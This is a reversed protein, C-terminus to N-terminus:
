ISIGGGTTDAGGSAPTTIAGLSHRGPHSASPIALAQNTTAGIAPAGGARSDDDYYLYYLTGYALGAIPILGTLTASQDPYVRTHDAVTIRVASGTDHATALGSGPVTYSSSILQQLYGSPYSQGSTAPGYITRPGFVGNVRYRASAQYQTGPTVSTIEKTTITPAELSAGLWGDDDGLGSAYVRYDFAVADVNTPTVAGSVVLAAISGSAGTLTSGSLSWDAGPASIATDYTLSSTPPAVGTQGLAFAHKADTESRVTYTVGGTAPDIKRGTIIVKVSWGDEPVFTVCDGIRYNMWIPKLPITGPGAERADCIDYTALQAVQDVNQVLPYSVEKTREDGDMVVYDAVSIEQASVLEWDNAESRYQPIIGNIRTRRPQTGSFSCKGVIDRHTITALSIRPARNICTIIGGPMAPTAGGAQLMSKLSNWLTDPRTYVQGGITWGRADDLNAGEVFSAVDILAIPAGIGAVRVGNQWRGLAWTLAHLHPNDSYVYTTEDLARCSGSGGPYTSDLRPDYVRVGRIIWGPSPLSTLGNTDKANYCFTNFTAALGSLKYTDDWGPFANGAVVGVRQAEPCAGIQRDEWIYGHYTGNAQGGGLQGSGDWSITTKNMFTTEFGAIPGLSLITVLGQFINNSGKLLKAVINGAVLTRGMAYPIGAYPDAKWKTQSGGASPKPLVTALMGIDLAAAAMLVPTIVASTVGLAGGIGVMAGSFAAGLSAAGALAAGATAVVVAATVVIAAIKVVKM